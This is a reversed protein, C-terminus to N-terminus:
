VEDDRQDQQVDQARELVGQDVAVVDQPAHKPRRSLRLSSAIPREAALQVPHGKAGGAEEDQEDGDERRDQEGDAGACLEVGRAGQFLERPLDPEVIDVTKHIRDDAKPLGAAQRRAIHVLRLGLPSRFLM